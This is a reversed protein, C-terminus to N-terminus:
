EGSEVPPEEPLPKVRIKSVRNGDMELIRFEAKQFTFEDGEEPIKNLVFIALGGVTSFMRAEEEFEEEDMEPFNMLDAFEWFNMSGLVTFTGDENVTHDPPEKDTLDPLDGLIHEVLNHLSIL